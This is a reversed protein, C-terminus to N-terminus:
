QKSKQETKVVMHERQPEIVGNKLNQNACKVIPDSSKDKLLREFKELCAVKKKSKNLRREFYNARRTFEASKQKAFKNTPDAAYAKAYNEAERRCMPIMETLNKINDYEFNKENELFMLM